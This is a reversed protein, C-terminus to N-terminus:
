RFEPTVDLMDKHHATRLQKFAQLVESGPSELPDSWIDSPNADFSGYPGIEITLRDDRYKADSTVSNRLQIIGVRGLARKLLGPESQAEVKSVSELEGALKNM